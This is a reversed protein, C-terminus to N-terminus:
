TKPLEDVYYGGCVEGLGLADKGNRFTVDMLKGRVLEGQVNPYEQLAAAAAADDFGTRVVDDRHNLAINGVYIIEGSKVEFGATGQSLCIVSTQYPNSISVSKMVYTGPPVLLAHYQVTSPPSADHEATYQGKFSNSSLRLNPADYTSFAVTYHQPPDATTGVILLAEPSASSFEVTKLLGSACATLLLTMAFLIAAGSKITRM